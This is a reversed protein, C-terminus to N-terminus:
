KKYLWAVNQPLTKSLDLHIFTDSIGIRCIGYKFAIALLKLRKISDTIAIDVALGETHASEEVGGVQANYEPSRYGSNIKFPFGCEERMKDLLMVLEPKLGVVESAKFYKYFRPLETLCKEPTKALYYKHTNDPLKFMAYLRHIIEHILIHTLEDGHYSVGNFDYAGNKDARIVIEEIGCNNPTGFGEVNHSIWESVPLLLAVIDYGLKKSPISIVRDYWSQNVSTFKNGNSDIYTSNPIDKFATQELVIELNGISSFFAKVDDLQKQSIWNINNAKILLKM